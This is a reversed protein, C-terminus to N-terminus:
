KSVAAIRDSMLEYIDPLVPVEHILYNGEEVDPHLQVLYLGVVQKNYKTELIYRYINLQLTYHGYNTDPVESICPTLAFKNYLNVKTIAKCRKWDYISVTGDDHLYVMDISGAIKITEDYILWETRYPTFMPHDRAFNLFYNWEPPPEDGYPLFSDKTQELIDLHTHTNPTNMWMEINYHLGTGASSVSEGNSSWSRKIEAKTMGWYKHGPKWDPKRMMGDIIKDADFKPFHTHVWTTVSTYRTAADPIIEYRHGKEFFRINADRAHPYKSSLFGVSM